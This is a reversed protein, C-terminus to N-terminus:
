ERLRDASRAQEERHLLRMAEVQEAPYFKEDNVIVVELTVQTERSDHASNRRHLRPAPHDVLGTSAHTCNGRDSPMGGSSALLPVHSTRASSRATTRRM